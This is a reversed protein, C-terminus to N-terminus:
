IYYEYFFFNKQKKTKQKKTKTKLNNQINQLNPFLTYKSLSLNLGIVNKMTIREMLIILIMNHKIEKYEETSVQKRKLVMYMVQHSMLWAKFCTTASSKNFSKPGM